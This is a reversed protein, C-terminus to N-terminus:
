VGETSDSAGARLARLAPEFKLATEEWEGDPDSGAVIGAGAFLRWARGSGVASRLAPVFDGDGEADFWGVPGAYWGREFPEAGRILSLAEGRPRGCVAPTPHLAEVLSLIDEGEHARGRITTELHHIRSLSLVRPEAEVEMEELFPGLVEVMEEATLAHEARDKASELLQRVRARDAEGDSERPVSGAVATAEFSDGRLRALLEPAAGLFVRGPRPELYFVHARRNEERLFRLSALPNAPRALSLDLFRALVAKQVRGEAIAALIGEIGTRWRNRPPADSGDEASSGPVFDGRNPLSPREGRRVGAALIAAVRALGPEDEYSVLRAEADNGELLIRPLHFAASPFDSWATETPDTDAFAFGGFFRPSPESGAGRAAWGMEGLVRRSGERIRDFRDGKGGSVEFCASAGAWAVWGDPGGWFGRPEGAFLALFEVAGAEVVDLSARHPGVGSSASTHPPQM